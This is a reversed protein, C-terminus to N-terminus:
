SLKEFVLIFNNAPMELVQRLAMGVGEAEATVAEMARVGWRSDRGKLREDFAKNSPATHAGDRMFPGYLILKGGLDLIRGAGAILALAAEWPAIHIMNASFIATIPEVLGAGEVPWPTETVDLEIVPLVTGPVTEAWAAISARMEADLESPQWRGPALTPAFAAAHQGTGSGIELITGHGPLIEALADGIVGANREAAAATLRAGEVPSTRATGKPEAM